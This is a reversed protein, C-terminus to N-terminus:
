WFFSNKRWIDEGIYEIGCEALLNVRSDQTWAKMALLLCSIVACVMYGLVFGWNFDSVIIADM